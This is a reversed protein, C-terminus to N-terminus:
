FTFCLVTTTLMISSIIFNNSTSCSNNNDLDKIRQRMKEAYAAKDSNSERQGKILDHSHHHTTNHHRHHFSTTQHNTPTTNQLTAEDRIAESSQYYQSSWKNYNCMDESNCSCVTVSTGPKTEKVNCVGDPLRRHACSYHKGTLPHDLMLCSGLVSVIINETIFRSCVGEVCTSKASNKTCKCKLHQFGDYDGISNYGGEQLFKTFVTNILLLTIYIFKRM